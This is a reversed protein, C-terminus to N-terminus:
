SLDNDQWQHGKYLLEHVHGNLSIYNVHQNGDPTTYGDLAGLMAAVGAPKASATLNNDQWLKSKDTYLLEHVYGAMDIYNVHQSDDSTRYGHVVGEAAISPSKAAGTLDTDQWHGGDSYLLEHVHGNGDIYNVHLHDGTTTYGDLAGFQAAVGHPNADLTLNNDVWHESKEKYMLEHVNGAMDIYNVHQNDGSSTYGTLAGPHAALGPLSLVNDKWHGSKDKYFLEHVSGNEDIYNVHQNGDSTRYGHVVGVAAVATSKAAETLDQDQWHGGNKHLLEHVHGAADIYNVHQDDGTTYGCLTGQVAAAGQPKATTTLNNDKWHESKDKYFLEHVNGARDIYNVHQNSGTTYGDLVDPAVLQDFRALWGVTNIYFEQLDALVSGPAPTMYAAGFGQMRDPSSGCPDGILNLDMYHHFSSDTVIRGVGAPWGDYACLIGITNAVSPTADGSFNAQECQSGDINTIHGGLVNGTAIVQPRPQVGGVSPYELVAHGNVTVRQEINLPTVVEGEHMHDPFSTISGGHGQLIPHVTGGPLTLTQPIADSQDDFQFEADTDGPNKQLTDARGLQVPDNSAGPWNVLTVAAGKFDLAQAPYGPPLDQPRAFWKRMTRVRPIWGGINSGLGAHDGTAFVGGGGNMFRVIAETEAQGIPTGLPNGYDWGEYGFIWLVNYLTLDISTSFNFNQFKANPDNRRHATDVSITPMKSDKLLFIFESITFTNDTADEKMQFSFGLRPVTPPIVPVLGDAVVLVSIDAM